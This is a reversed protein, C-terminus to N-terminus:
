LARAVLRSLLTGTSRLTRRGEERGDRDGRAICGAYRRLLLLDARLELRLRRWGRRWGSFAERHYRRHIRLVADLLEWGPGQYEHDSERERVLIMPEAIYGVDGHLCLRMWMEVDASFGYDADYLGYREHASRRVMSDASVPCGFESLMRDLWQRGPTLPAYDAVWRRGTPRGDQDIELLGTHVFLASPHSDLFEVMRAVLTPECLDHDHCVFIYEGVAERIGANLNGPM